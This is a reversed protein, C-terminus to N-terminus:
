KDLNDIQKNFGELCMLFQYVLQLDNLNVRDKQFRESIDYFMALKRYDRIQFERAAKEKNFESMERRQNDAEEQQSFCILGFDQCEEYYSNDSCL